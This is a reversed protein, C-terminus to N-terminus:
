IASPSLRPEAPFFIALQNIKQWYEKFLELAKKDRFVQKIIKALESETMGKEVLAFFRNLQDGLQRELDLLEFMLQKFVLLEPAEPNLESALATEPAPALLMALKEVEDNMM